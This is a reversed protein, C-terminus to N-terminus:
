CLRKREWHREVLLFVLALASLAMLALYLWLDFGDGTKPANDDGQDTVVLYFGISAHGPNGAAAANGLATDRADQEALYEAEEFNWYWSLDFDQIHKSKVTGSVARVVDERLVGDPLPYSSTTTVNEGDMAANVPLDEPTEMLYMVAHYTVPRVCNNIFRVITGSTTGPAIVYDGNGSIVTVEGDGNAYTPDFIGFIAAGQDNIGEASKWVLNNTTYTLTHNPDEVRDAFSLGVVYPFTLIELALLCVCTVTLWGRNRELFSLM